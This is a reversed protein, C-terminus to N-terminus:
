VRKGAEDLRMAHRRDNVLTRERSAPNRQKGSGAQWSEGLRKRPTGGEGIEAEMEPQEAAARGSLTITEHEPSILLLNLIMLRRLFHHKENAKLSPAVNADSSCCLDLRQKRLGM